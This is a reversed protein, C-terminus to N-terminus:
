LVDQLNITFEMLVLRSIPIKPYCKQWLMIICIAEYLKQQDQPAQLLLIPDVHARMSAKMKMTMLLLM